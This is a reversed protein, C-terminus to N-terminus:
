NVCNVTATEVDVFDRPKHKAYYYDKILSTLENSSLVENKAGRPSLVISRAVRSPQADSLLLLYCIIVWDSIQYKINLASSSACHTERSHM